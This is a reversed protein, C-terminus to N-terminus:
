FQNFSISLGDLINFIVVLGYHTDLVLLYDELVDDVLAEIQLRFKM